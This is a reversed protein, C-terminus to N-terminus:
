WLHVMLGLSGGASFPAVTYFVESDFLFSDRNFSYSLEGAGTIEVRRGVPVQLGLRLGLDVWPRTSSGPDFTDSGAARLFGFHGQACPRMRVPGLAVLSPCALLGLTGRDFSAAGLETREPFAAAYSVELELAPSWAGTRRAGWGAGLSAGILPNPAPGFIALARAGLWADSESPARHSTKKASRAGTSTEPILLPVPEKQTESTQAPDGSAPAGNSSSAAGTPTPTLTGTARADAYPRSETEGEQTEGLAVSVVFRAALRAEDCDRARLKRSFRSASSSELRIVVETEGDAARFTVFLREPPEDSLVFLHRPLASELEKRFEEPSICDPSAEVRLGLAREGSPPLGLVGAPGVM